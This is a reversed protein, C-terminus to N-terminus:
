SSDHEGADNRPSFIPANRRQPGSFPSCPQSSRRLVLPVSPQSAVWSMSTIRRAAFMVARNKSVQWCAFQSRPRRNWWRNRSLSVVRCWVFTRFASLAIEGNRGDSRNSLGGSSSVVNVVVVARVEIRQEDKRHENGKKDSRRNGANQPIDYKKGQLRGAPVSNRKVM